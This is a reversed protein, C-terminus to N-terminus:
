KPKAVVEKITGEAINRMDWLYFTNNIAIEPLVLDRNLFKIPVTYKTEGPNISGIGDL